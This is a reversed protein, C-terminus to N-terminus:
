EFKARHMKNGMISATIRAARIYNRQNIVFAILSKHKLVM